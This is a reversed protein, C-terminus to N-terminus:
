DHSHAIHIINCTVFAGVEHGTHWILRGIGLTVPGDTIYQENIAM